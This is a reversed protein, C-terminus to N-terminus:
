PQRVNVRYHGVQTTQPALPAVVLVARGNTGSPLTLSGHNAADLPLPTVSPTGNAAYTIVQVIFREPLTPTVHVWGQPQWGGAGPTEADDQYGIEPV